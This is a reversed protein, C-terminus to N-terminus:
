LARAESLEGDPATCPREVVMVATMRPQRDGVVIHRDDEYSGTQDNQYDGIQVYTFNATRLPAVRSPSAQRRGHRIQIECKGSLM